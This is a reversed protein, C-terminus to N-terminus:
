NVQKEDALIKAYEGRIVKISISVEGNKINYKEIIKEYKDYTAIAPKLCEKSVIRGNSIKDATNIIEWRYDSIQKDLLLDKLIEFIRERHPIANFDTGLGVDEDEITIISDYDDSSLIIRCAEECAMGLGVELGFPVENYFRPHERCIDCLYGDGLESIINCLGRGDLHPCREGECLRFHPTGNTDISERITNGTKSKLANYKQMTDSDIDIEWGICCSHKCRDAICCFDRYYKPAFIPM